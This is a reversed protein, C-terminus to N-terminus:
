LRVTSTQFRPWPLRSSQAGLVRLFLYLFRDHCGGDIDFVLDARDVGVLFAGEHIRDVAPEFALDNGNDLMVIMVVLPRFLQDLLHGLHTQEARCDPLFVAAEAQGGRGIGLDDHANRGVPHRDGADEVRVEDHRRRDLAEARRLLLRLPERLESRALYAAPQRQGLRIGSGVQLRDARDGLAIAVIVHEVAGLGPYGVRDVARAEREEGLGVGRGIRAVLAHAKEDRVLAIPERRSLLEVLQAVLRDIGGFQHHFVIPYRCVLQDASDFPLAEELRGAPQFQAPDVDGRAADAEGFTRQPQRGFIGLLALRHALGDRLM